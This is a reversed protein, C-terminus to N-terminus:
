NETGALQTNTSGASPSNRMICRRSSMVSSPPAAAVHGSAARACCGAIGTIPNKRLVDAARNSADRRRTGGPGSPPLSRRPGSRRSRIESPPLDFHDTAPKQGGFQDTPWHGDDDPLDRRRERGPRLPSPASRRQSRPRGPGPVAEDGAEVPRHASTVPTLKEAGRKSRLSQLKSRWSTGLASSLQWAPAVQSM